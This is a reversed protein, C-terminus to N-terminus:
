CLVELEKKIVKLRELLRDKEDAISLLYHINERGVPDVAVDWEQFCPDNARCPNNVSRCFSPVPGNLLDPKYIAPSVHDCKPCRNELWLASEQRKM